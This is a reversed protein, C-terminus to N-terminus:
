GVAIVIKEATIQREGIQLTRPDLFTAREFFWTVGSNELLKV